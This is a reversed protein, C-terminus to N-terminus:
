SSQYCTKCVHRVQEDTGFKNNYTMRMNAGYQGCKYCPTKPENWSEISVPDSMDVDYDAANKLVRM